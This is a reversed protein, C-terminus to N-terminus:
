TSIFPYFQHIIVMSLPILCYWSPHRKFKTKCVLFLMIHIPLCVSVRGQNRSILNLLIDKQTVSLNSLLSSLSPIKSEQPSKTSVPSGPSCTSDKPDISSSSTVVQDILEHTWIGSKIEIKNIVHQNHKRDQQSSSIVFSSSPTFQLTLVPQTIISQYSIITYSGPTSLTEGVQLVQIHNPHIISKFTSIVNTTTTSTFEQNLHDNSVFLIMNKDANDDFVDIIENFTIPSPSRYSMGDTNTITFVNTSTM